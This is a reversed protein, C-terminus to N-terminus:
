EIESSMRVGVKSRGDLPQADGHRHQDKDAKAQQQPQAGKVLLRFIGAGALVRYVALDRLNGQFPLAILVQHPLRFVRLQQGMGDREVMKEILLGEGPCQGHFVQFGYQGASHLHGLQFRNAVLGAGDGQSQPHHARTIARDVQDLVQLM